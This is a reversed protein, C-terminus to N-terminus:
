QCVFLTQWWFVILAGYKSPFNSSNGKLTISSANQKYWNNWKDKSLKLKNSSQSMVWCQNQEKKKKLYINAGIVVKEYARQEGADNMQTSLERVRLYKSIDM